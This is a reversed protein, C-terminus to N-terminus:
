LVYMLSAEEVEKKGKNRGEKRVDKRKKKRQMALKWRKVRSRERRRRM